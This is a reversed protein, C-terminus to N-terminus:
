YAPRVAEESLAANSLSTLLNLSATQKVLDSDQMLQSAHQLLPGSPEAYWAQMQVGGPGNVVVSQREPEARLVADSGTVEVLLEGNPEDADPLLAGVELTAITQDAFRALIFWAAVDGHDAKTVQIRELPSDILSTIYVILDSVSSDLDSSYNRPLRHAAYVGYLRGYRGARCDAWLRAMAPLSHLRSMLKLRGDVIAGALREDLDPIPLSVVPAGAEIASFALEARESKEALIVVPALGVIPDRTSRWLYVPDGFGASMAHRAADTALDNNGAITLTPEASM